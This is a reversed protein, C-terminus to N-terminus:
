HLVLLPIGIELAARRTLSSQFLREFFSHKHPLIAMLDVENKYIFQQLSEWVRPEHLVYMKLLDPEIGSTLIEKKLAVELRTWPDSPHQNVHVCSINASFSKATKILWEPLNLGEEEFNTAYLIHKFERFNADVPVALVPCSVREIVQSTVSGFLKEIVNSAGRTGIVILDPNVENVAQLIGDIAFAYSFKFSIEVESNMEEKVQKGYKEFEKYARDEKELNIRDILEPTIYFEGTSAYHFAHFLVVKADYKEALKIAYAFAHHANPSFDTPFLITKIQTRLSHDAGVESLGTELSSEEIHAQKLNKM